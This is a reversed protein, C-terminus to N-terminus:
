KELNEKRIGRVYELLYGRTNLEPNDIVVALLIQLVEGIEKGQNVGHAILDTGTVALQKLTTCEEKELIEQYLQDIDRVNQLKEERKYLSQSMADAYHLLLYKPFLEMSIKNMARRVNKATAEMRYDHYRVLKSVIRITENDFKWRRLIAKTIKEGEVDHGYFHAVGDEMKKCNPKAVDHLMTALRLFKDAEVYKLAELSHEGVGYCHHKNEQKTIMMEDWEPFIVVTVGLQYAIDLYEPHPSTLLKVMEVQIREASIKELTHALKQIGRCTEEEIEFGLQASFRIARLIRLADEGFRAEADGVCRIIKKELDEMGGFIDILGERENYAMANITFDRRLLDERLNRTFAVESPHRNDEYMGDIRYTTVEYGIGHLLVTITGHEIGTDFTKEFLAKTEDPKASTTIDWDGPERGLMMDRVCGGVAYAEHGNAYLVDIIKKVDEPLYM